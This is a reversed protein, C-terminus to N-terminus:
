RLKAQAQYTLEHYWPQIDKATHRLVRHKIGMAKCASIFAESQADFDDHPTDMTRNLNLRPQFVLGVDHNQMWRSFQEVHWQIPTLSLGHVMNCEVEAVQAIRQLVMKLDDLNASRPILMSREYADMSHLSCLVRVKSMSSLASVFSFVREYHIGSFAVRVGIPVRSANVICAVADLVASANLIPEGEGTWSLEVEGEWSGV